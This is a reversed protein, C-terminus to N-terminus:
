ALASAGTVSFNLWAWSWRTEKKQVKAPAPNPLAARIRQRLHDPAAHFRAHTKISAKVDRLQQYAEGCSVCNEIHAGCLVASSADLEGDIYATMLSQSENCDM